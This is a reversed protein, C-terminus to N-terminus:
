IHQWKWRKKRAKGQNKGGMGGNEALGTL